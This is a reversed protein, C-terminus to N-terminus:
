AKAASRIRRSVVLPLMAAWVRVASFRMTRWEPFANMVQRWHVALEDNMVTCLSFPRTEPAYRAGLPDMSTTVEDWSTSPSKWEGRIHTLFSLPFTLARKLPRTGSASFPERKANVEKPRTTAAISKPFRGFFLRDEVGCLTPCACFSGTRSPVCLESTTAVIVLKGEYAASAMSASTTSPPMM